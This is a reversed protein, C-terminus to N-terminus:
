NESPAPARRLSWALWAACADLLLRREHAPFAHVFPDWVKVENSAVALNLEGNALGEVTGLPTRWRQWQEPHTRLSLCLTECLLSVPPPDPPLRLLWSALAALAAFGCVVGSLFLPLM